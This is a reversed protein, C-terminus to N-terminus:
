LHKAKAFEIPDGIVGWQNLGELWVMFRSVMEDIFNCKHGRIACINKMGERDSRLRKPILFAKDGFFVYKSSVLIRNVSTDTEINSDNPLGGEFSHHSDEQTWENRDKHYINDGYMQKLSGNLVPKKCKFRPDNWYEDFDMVEDVRMAYILHGALNYNAKSGTGIIWDGVKAHNRIKPKCTALTCYGYFPNPAFGFDRAVVYSFVRIASM